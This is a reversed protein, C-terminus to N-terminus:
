KKYIAPSTINMENMWTECLSTWMEVSGPNNRLKIGHAGQPFVHISANIKKDIMPKVLRRKQM